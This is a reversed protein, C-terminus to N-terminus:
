LIRCSCLGTEYAASRISITPLMCQKISGKFLLLISIDTTDWHLIRTGTWSIFVSSNLKKWSVVWLRSKCRSFQVTVQDSVSVTSESHCLSFKSVPVLKSVYVCIQVCSLCPCCLVVTTSQRLSCMSCVAATDVLSLGLFWACGYGGASAPCLCFFFSRWCSKWSVVIHSGSCTSYQLSSM